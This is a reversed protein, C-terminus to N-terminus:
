DSQIQPTGMRDSQPRTRMVASYMEKLRLAVSEWLFNHSLEKGAQGRKFREAESGLAEGLKAEIDTKNVAAIWGARAAEVEDALNVHPSILVPVGAALAEMVCLGFNEHYSPLALLSANGLAAEKDDGELWGPFIVFESANHEDVIRKLSAVYEAPGEGALVLRWNRFEHRGVLSVFAAVLVELAKKPHLRSLVLVYPHDLLAPFRAALKVVVDPGPRSPTEVGLPVVVGHNLGLSNEVAQQEGQTTYHIAAAGTLMSQVGANWFVKKRLSKQKMSWPDLTGLPRVIYPIAKANCARAAAISSHNFIAHIHVLDYDSVHEYLWSAFPRSYKFSAGLQIPFFIAPLNKYRTTAGRKHGGPRNPAPLDHDTSALMVDIGVAALSGCMPIIAQGPGGSRESVSPIVHLVKM